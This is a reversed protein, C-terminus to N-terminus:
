KNRLLIHRRNVISELTKALTPLLSIPRYSNPQTRDKDPKPIPIINAQKWLTPIDGTKWIKNFLQTLNHLINHPLRRLFQYPIKDQGPATNKKNKVTHEVEALTIPSNIKKFYDSTRNNNRELKTLLKSVKELNKIKQPNSNNTNAQFADALIEAKEEETTTYINSKPHIVLPPIMSKSMGTGMIKKIKDWIQKTTSNRNLQNCAKEWSKKKAKNIQIKFQANINYYRRKAIENNPQKRYQRLAKKREKKTKELQQDWWPTLPAPTNAQTLPFALNAAKTIAETINTAWTNVNDHTLLQESKLELNRLHGM